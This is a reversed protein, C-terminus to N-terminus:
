AIRTLIVAPDRIAMARAFCFIRTRLQSLPLLQATVQTTMVNIMRIGMFWPRQRATRILMIRAIVRLIKM